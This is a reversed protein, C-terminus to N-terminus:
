RTSSTTWARTRRKLRRSNKDPGLRQPRAARDVRRRGRLFAVRVGPRVTTPERTFEAGKAKLEAVVADIGSVTLGFHDLGQYPTDSGTSATAPPLPRLSSIPAASSSTSGRSARSCPACSRPASCASTTSPPPEPEPQASPHPRLHVQGHDAEQEEHEAYGPHLTAFDPALPSRSAMVNAHSCWRAFGHRAAKSRLITAACPPAGHAFGVRYWGGRDGDRRARRRRAARRRRRAWRARRLLRHQRARGAASRSAAVRLQQRAEVGVLALGGREGPVPRFPGAPVIETDAAVDSRGAARASSHRASPPRRPAAPSATRAPRGVLGLVDHQQLVDQRRAAVAGALAGRLPERKREEARRGFGSRPAEAEFAVVQGLRDGHAVAADDRDRRGRERRQGVADGASRM